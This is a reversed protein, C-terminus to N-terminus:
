FIMVFDPPTRRGFLRPHECQVWMPVISLLVEGFGILHSPAYVGMWRRRLSGETVTFV